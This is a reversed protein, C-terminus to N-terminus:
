NGKKQQDEQLSKAKDLLGKASYGDIVVQPLRPDYCNGSAEWDKLVKEAEEIAGLRVLAELMNLYDRNLYRKCAKKELNWLRLVKSKKGIKSYLSILHNYGVGDGEGLSLKQEAKQLAEIAKETQKAKIYFNAVVVYSSWDMVIHEQGEMEELVQEMGGIDEKEGYSTLCIRYSYNDPSVNKRKMDRFVDPVKDHQELNNYLRMISNYALPSAFGMEEMKQFHAVAKDAQNQRVYCNLLAGYTKATKHEDNLKSFYSEAAEFGHVKGILDLQVAHEATSFICIGKENMWQSVQLAQSFRRRKRLDHIIRQLEAVSVKKRTEVWSDLEPVLTIKPDGLASLKSYLSKGRQSTSTFYSRCEAAAAAAAAASAGPRAAGCLNSGATTARALISSLKRYNM